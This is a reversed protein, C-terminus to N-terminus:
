AAIEEKVPLPDEEYCCYWNWLNEQTDYAPLLDFFRNDDYGPISQKMEEDLYSVDKCGVVGDGRADAEFIHRGDDGGIPFVASVSVSVYHQRAFRFRAPWQPREACRCSSEYREICAICAASITM